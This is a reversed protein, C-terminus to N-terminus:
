GAGEIELRHIVPRATSQTGSLEIAVHRDGGSSKDDLRGFRHLQAYGNSNGLPSQTTAMALQAQTSGQAMTFGSGRDVTIANPRATASGNYYMAASLTNQSPTYTVRMGRTPDANLPLNGTKISYPIATGADTAVSPRPHVIGNSAAMLSQPRGDVQVVSAAAMEHAYAETWWAKTVLSFCLANKPRAVGLSDPPIYHFRVVRESPNVHVFFSDSKSFDILPDTWYNGVQESLPSASSGDFAYLGASDAIYAVGEFVDVCRHNIAGRQAVMASSADELPHGSITLRYIHSRQAVYLSSDMVFLSTIADSDRGAQQLILQFEPPVSEPEDVESFYITNPEGASVAYWARDQHMVMVAMGPPPIGFREANPYGETTLIPLSTEEIPDVSIGSGITSTASITSKYSPDDAYITPTSTYGSGRRTLSLSKVPFRPILYAAAGTGDGTFTVAVKTDALKTIPSVVTINGLAGNNTLVQLAGPSFTGSSPEASLTTYGSGNSTIVIQWDASVEGKTLDLEAVATAGTGGGGVLTITPVAERGLAIPFLPSSTVTLGFIQGTVSLSGQTLEEDSKTDAYTSPVSGISLSAVRYLTIAQDGTTRWLELNTIRDPEPNKTPLNNWIVAKANQGCDIEVLPSISGFNPGGSAAPTNDAYRLACLYKGAIRPTIDATAEAPEDYVKTTILGDYGNGTDVVTAGSISGGTVACECAAGGGSKLPGSSIVDVLPPNSYQTGATTVTPSSARGSFQVTLTPTTGSLPAAVTAGVPASGAQLSPGATYLGGDTIVVAALPASTAAASAFNLVGYGSAQRGATVATTSAFFTVSPPSTYYGSGPGVEVNVVGGVNSLAIAGGTAQGGTIVVRPATTYTTAATTYTVGALQGGSLIARAGSVGDISVSPDSIYNAGSNEIIIDRLTYYGNATTSMTVSAPATIGISQATVGNYRVGRRTGNICYLNGRRDLSLSAPKGGIGTTIIAM